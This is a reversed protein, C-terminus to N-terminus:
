SRAAAAAAAPRNPTFDEVDDVWINLVGGVGLPRTRLKVLAIAEIRGRAAAFCRLLDAPKFHRMSSLEQIAGPSIACPTTAADAVLDFLVRRGDWRPHEATADGHIHTMMM